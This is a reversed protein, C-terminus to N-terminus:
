KKVTEQNYAELGGELVYVENFGKRGLKKAAKKSQSGNGCYLYVPKDKRIKTQNKSKIYKVSFNRAGKIKDSKFQKDKRIDILQGKRMNKKFAQVELSNVKVNKNKQLNLVLFGITLGIIVPIGYQIILDM